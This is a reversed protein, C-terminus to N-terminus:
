AGFAYAHMAFVGYAYSAHLRKAPAGGAGLAVFLPVLHEATPHNHLAEPARAAWALADDTRGETLAADLWDAFTKAYAAAPADLAHRGFDRLNHTFGGSAVVLVGEERLPALAQGLRYHAAPDFPPTVSLTAIPVDAQPYALMLPVWAGHDLGRSVIDGDTLRTERLLALARQATDVSGPAPYNLAYLAKPFGYFDHITEHTRQTAVQPTKTVYHASVALIAKPTPWQAALTRLFTRAAIDEFPLTPAGHSVFIAPLASM